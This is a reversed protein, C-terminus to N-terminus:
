WSAMTPCQFIVVAHLLLLAWVTGVQASVVFPEDNLKLGVPDFAQAMLPRDRGFFLYGTDSKGVTAYVGNSDDPLLRQNTKGDLSGVYIGRTDAQSSFKFYLFHQGDPLFYPDTFDTEQLSVDPKLVTTAAGGTATVRLLGM